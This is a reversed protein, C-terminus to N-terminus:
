TVITPVNRRQSKTGANFHDEFLTWEPESARAFRPHIPTTRLVENEAEIRIDDVRRYVPMEGSLSPLIELPSSSVRHDESVTSEFSLVNPTNTANAREDYTTNDTAEAFVVGVMNQRQALREGDTSDDAGDSLMDVTPSFSSDRETRNSTNVNLVQTPVTAM